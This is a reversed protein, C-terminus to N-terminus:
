VDAYTHNGDRVADDGADLADSEDDDDDDDGYGDGDGGNTDDHILLTLMAM